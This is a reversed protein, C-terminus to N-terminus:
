LTKKRLKAAPTFFSMTCLNYGDWYQASIWMIKQHCIRCIIIKKAERDCDHYETTLVGEGIKNERKTQKKKWSLMIKNKM